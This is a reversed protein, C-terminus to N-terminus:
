WDPPRPPCPAPRGAAHPWLTLWPRWPCLVRLFSLPLSIGLLALELGFAASSPCGAALRQGREPRASRPGGEGAKQETRGETPQFIGVRM